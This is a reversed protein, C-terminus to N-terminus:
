PSSSETSLKLTATDNGQSIRCSVTSALPSRNHFVIAFRANGPFRLDIVNQDAAIDGTYPEPQWITAPALDDPDFDLAITTEESSSLNGEVIVTRDGHRVEIAGRATNVSIEQKEILTTAQTIVTGISGSVHSANIETSSNPFYIAAALALIGCAVGASFAYAYRRARGTRLAGTLRAFLGTRPYAPRTGADARISAMVSAKFDDPAKASPMDALLEVVRRIKDHYRRAEPNAQLYADLDAQEEPTLTEDVARDMLERYKEDIM